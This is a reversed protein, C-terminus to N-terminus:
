QLRMRKKVRQVVEDPISMSDYPRKIPGHPSRPKQRHLVGPENRFLDRVFDPSRGLDEALEKPTWCHEKAKM